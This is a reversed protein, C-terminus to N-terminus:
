AFIDDPSSKDFVKHLLKVHHKLADVATFIGAIDGEKLIVTAELHNDAMASLVDALSDNIDVMYARRSVLDGTELGDEDELKHGLAVAKYLDHESIIGIIDDNEVIPLHHINHEDMMKKADNLPAKSSISYPFPVMVSLMKPMNKHIM